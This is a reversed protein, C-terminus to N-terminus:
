PGVMPLCARLAACADATALDCLDAFCDLVNGVVLTPCAAGLKVVAIVCAAQNADASPTSGDPCTLQTGYGGALGNFEDCFRQQEAPSLGALSRTRDPTGGSTGGCGVVAAILLLALMLAVRVRMRDNSKTM